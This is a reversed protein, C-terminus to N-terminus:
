IVDPRARLEDVEILRGAAAVASRNWKNPTGAMRAYSSRTGEQRQAAYTAPHPLDSEGGTLYISISSHGSQISSALDPNMFLIDDDPHAVVQVDRTQSEPERTAPDSLPAGSTVIVSLLLVSAIWSRRRNM